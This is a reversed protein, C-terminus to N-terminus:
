WNYHQILIALVASCLLSFLVVSLYFRHRGYIHFINNCRGLCDCSKDVISKGSVKSTWLLLAYVITFIFGILISAIMLTRGLSVEKAGLNDLIESLSSFGGFMVFVFASFVGLIGIIEGYMNNIKEPINENLENQLGALREYSANIERTLRQNEQELSMYTNHLESQLSNYLESKQVQSLEAQNLMKKLTVVPKEDYNEELDQLVIKVKQFFSTFEAYQSTYVKRAVFQYDIIVTDTTPIKDLLAKIDDELEASDVTDAPPTVSDLEDVINSQSASSYSNNSEKDLIQLFAGLYDTQQEM